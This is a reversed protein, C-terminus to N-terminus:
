IVKELNPGTSQIVTGRPLNKQNNSTGKQGEPTCHEVSIEQGNRDYWPVESPVVKEDKHGRGRQGLKM